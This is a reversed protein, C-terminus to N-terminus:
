QPKDTFKFCADSSNFNRAVNITVSVVLKFILLSGLAAAREDPKQTFPIIGKYDCLRLVSSESRDDRFKGLTLILSENLSLMGRQVMERGLKSAVDGNLLM